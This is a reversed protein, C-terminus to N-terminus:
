NKNNVEYHGTLSAEAAKKNKIGGVIFLVPLVFGLLGAM